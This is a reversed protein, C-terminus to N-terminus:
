IEPLQILNIIYTMRDPQALLTVMLKLNAMQHQVIRGLNLLDASSCSMM